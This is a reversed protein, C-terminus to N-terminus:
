ASRTTGPGSSRGDQGVALDLVGTIADRGFRTRVTGFESLRALLARRDHGVEALVRRAGRDRVAVLLAAVMASGAGRRQHLDDVLVGLEWEGPAGEVASALAVVGDRPCECILALHGGRCAVADALYDPPIDRL